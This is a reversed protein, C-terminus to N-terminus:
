KGMYLHLFKQEFHGMKKHRSRCASMEAHYLVPAMHALWGLCPVATRLLSRAFSVVASRQTQLGISSLM